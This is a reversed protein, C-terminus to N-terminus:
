DLRMSSCQTIVAEPLVAMAAPNCWFALLEVVSVARCAMGIGEIRLPMILGPLEPM